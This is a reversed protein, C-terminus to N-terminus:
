TCTDVNMDLQVVMHVSLNHLHIFGRFTDSLTEVGEGKEDKEGIEGMEGM